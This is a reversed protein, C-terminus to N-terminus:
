ILNNSKFGSKLEQILKSSYQTSLTVVLVFLKPDKIAFKAAWTAFSTVCDASWTLILNIECNILPM